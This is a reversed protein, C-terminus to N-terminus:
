LGRNKLELFISKEGYMKGTDKELSSEKFNVIGFGFTKSSLVRPAIPMKELVEKFGQEDFNSSEFTGFYSEMQKKLSYM